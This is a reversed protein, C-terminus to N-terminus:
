IRGTNLTGVSGLHYPRGGSYLDHTGYPIIDETFNTKRIGTYGFNLADRSDSITFILSM